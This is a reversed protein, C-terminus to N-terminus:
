VGRESEPPERLLIKERFLMVHLQALARETAAAMEDPIEESSYRATLFASTIAAALAKVEAPHDPLGRLYELPPQSPRRGRGFRTLWIMMQGYAFRVRLAPSVQAGRIRVRRYRRHHNVGWATLLSVLAVALWALMWVRERGFGQGIFLISAVLDKLSTWLTGLMGDAETQDMPPTPDFSQWGRGDIYVEVWAHADKARVEYTDEEPNLEGAVFGTVFRSPIGLCRCMVAMASAYHTCYGERADFLFHDVYDRERPRPTSRLTYPYHEVLYQRLLIAADYADEAEGERAIKRALERVREPLEDPLQLYRVRLEPELPPLPNTRPTPGEAPVQSVVEYEQGPVLYGSCYIVGNAGLRLNHAPARVQAPAFLGPLAASFPARLRFVQRVEVSDQTRLGQVHSQNFTWVDGDRAGLQRKFRVIEWSRGTYKTYTEQRWNEGRECAVELVVRDGSPPTEGSLWYLPEPAFDTRDRIMLSALYRALSNKVYQGIESSGQMYSAGAGAGVAAVFVVACVAQWTNVSAGRRPGRDWMIQRVALVPEGEEHSHRRYEVALLFLGGIVVMATGVAALASPKAVLVLIICSMSPIITLVLDTLSRVAVARFALVWLFGTVLLRYSATLSYFVESGREPWTLVFEFVGFALAALLVAVNVVPRPIRSYYLYYAAPFALVLLLGIKLFFGRDNILPASATFAGMMTVWGAICLVFWPPVDPVDDAASRVAPYHPDPLIGLKVMRRLFLRKLRSPLNAPRAGSAPMM